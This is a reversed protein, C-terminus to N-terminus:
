NHFPLVLEQFKDETKWMHVMARAWSYPSPLPSLSARSLLLPSAYVVLLSVRPKVGNTAM